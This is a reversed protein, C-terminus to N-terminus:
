IVSQEGRQDSPLSARRKSRYRRTMFAGVILTAAVVAVVGYAIDKLEANSSSATSTTTGLGGSLEAATKVTTPVTFAQVKNDGFTDKFTLSIAINASTGSGAGRTGNLFGGPFGGAPFSGNRSFTRSTNGILTRNFNGPFASSSSSASTTSTGARTSTASTSTSTLTAPATFPITVSFPLPTNPDIEGLYVPTATNLGLLGSVSVYYASATGEDLISGTVTFGTTTQSVAEDQLILIITGQLTFEVPFSQTHTAGNSDTFTVTVTGSYIGATASPSSTVQALFTANAGPGLESVPTSSSISALVLPSSVSLAFTPSYIAATGENRLQFSAGTETGAVVTSNSQKLALPFSTATSSVIPAPSIVASQTLAVSAPTTWSLDLTFNYSGPTMTSAVDLNFTLTVVQDAGVSAAYATATLHGNLDTVGSPMSLTGKLSTVSTTGLYQLSVVLPVDQSGPEPSTSSAASAAVTSNSSAARQWTASQILFSSQLQAIPPPMIVSTQTLGLSQSTMWSLDLTYNYSGPNVSSAVDLYFTLQVAGYQNTTAASYAVASSHGNLDTIGTPLKITGQLSTVPQSGLYQLSVVLPTDQTGPLPSTTSTASGWQAGEVVFSSAFQATPTSVMFGLTQTTTQNNSYADLYKATLTLIFATNTLSSPVFLKLVESANGGPALAGTAPLQNLLTVSAPASVTTTVPGSAASGSNAITITVNNVEGAVLNTTGTSFNLQVPGYLAIPVQTLQTIVNSETNNAYQIIMPIYYTIGTTASKNINLNFTETVITNPTVNLGIDKPQTIGNPGTFPTPSTAGALSLEYTTQPSSCPGSFLLTVTLPVNQDGPYVSIPAGPTGWIAGTVSFPNTLSTCSATSTTTSSPAATVPMAYVGAALVLLALVSLSAASPIKKM